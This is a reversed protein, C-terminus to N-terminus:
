SLSLLSPSLFNFLSFLPHSPSLFVYLSASIEGCEKRQNASIGLGREEKGCGLDKGLMWLELCQVLGGRNM